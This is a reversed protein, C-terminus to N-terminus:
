FGGRHDFDNPEKRASVRSLAMAPTRAKCGPCEIHGRCGFSPQLIRKKGDQFCAHCLYHAPEGKPDDPKLALVFGGESLRILTYREAEDQQRQAEKLAAELELLRNMMQSQAVQASVLKYALDAAMTLTDIDAPKEKPKSVLDRLKGAAGGAEKVLGFGEKALGIAETLAGTDIGLVNM